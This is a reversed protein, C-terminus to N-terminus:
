EKKFRITGEGDLVEKSTTIYSADYFDTSHMRLYGEEDYWIMHKLEINPLKENSFYIFVRCLVGMKLAQPNKELRYSGKELEEGKSNYIIYKGGSSFSYSSWYSSECKIWKGSYWSDYYQCAVWHGPLEALLKNYEAEQTQENKNGIDDSNNAKDDGGGCSVVFSSILISLLCASLLKFSKM